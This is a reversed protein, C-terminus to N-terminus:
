VFYQGDYYDEDENRIEMHEDYGSDKLTEMQREADGFDEWASHKETGIYVVYM